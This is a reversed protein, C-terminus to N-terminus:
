ASYGTPAAAGFFLSVLLGAVMLLALAVGIYIIAQRAEFRDQDGDALMWKIGNLMLMLVAIGVSIGYIITTLSDIPDNSISIPIINQANTEAILLFFLFLFKKM